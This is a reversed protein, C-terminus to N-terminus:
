CCLLLGHSSGACRQLQGYLYCGVLNQFHARQLQRQGHGDVAGLRANPPQSPRHGALQVAQLYALSVIDFAALHQGADIGGFCRGAPALGLLLGICRAALQDYRLAILVVVGCQHM